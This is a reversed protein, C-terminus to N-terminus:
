IARQNMKLDLEQHIMAVGAHFADQPSQVHVLTGNLLVEGSYESWIGNIIKMLTSKGAGNAGVLAHVEGPRLEFDVNKLVAVGGFEKTIGKMQLVNDNM